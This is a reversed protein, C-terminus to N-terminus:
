EEEDEGLWAGAGSHHEWLEYLGQAEAEEISRAAKRRKQNREADEDISHNMLVSHGKATDMFAKELIVYADILRQHNKKDYIGKDDELCTLANHIAERLLDVEKEPTRNM